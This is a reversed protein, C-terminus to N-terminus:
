LTNRFFEVIVAGVEVHVATRDIGAADECIESAEARLAPGCVDTFIFHGGAVSHLQPPRPLNAALSRANEEGLQSQQPRLVLVPMTVPALEERQFLLTLPDLLVLAKLPLRPLTPNASPSTAPGGNCSQVDNPNATCYTALHGANPTAGALGLTVAGGLSFGLMGTRGTAIRSKFRSDATVAEFAAKVQEPRQLFPTKAHFPAAVIFGARALRVSLDGLLLPSGGTRGGGHSLLILPFTGDAIETNQSAQITFPGAQWPAEESTTPYWVLADFPPQAPVAIRAGGAHFAVTQASATTAFLGLMVGLLFLTRV